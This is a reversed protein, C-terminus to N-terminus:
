PRQRWALVAGAILVAGGAAALFFGPGFYPSVYLQASRAETDLYDAFIGLSVVFVTVGLLALIYYGPPQVAMWAVVAVLVAAVVVLWNDAAIGPVVAYGAAPVDHHHWPLPMSAAFLLAAGALVALMLRSSREDSTPPSGLRAIVDRRRDRVSRTAEPQPEM